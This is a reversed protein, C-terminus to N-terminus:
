WRRNAVRSGDREQRRTHDARQDHSNRKASHDDIPLTAPSASDMPRKEWSRIFRDQLSQHLDPAVAGIRVWDLAMADWQGDDVSLGQGMGQTLRQVQHERRLAEDEAPTLTESQIEGRVCLIRLAKERADLDVPSDSGTRALTDKIAKLGGKPWQQAGAILSEAAQKLSERESSEADQLVAWEYTNISRAAEFLNRFSQETDRVRQQAM